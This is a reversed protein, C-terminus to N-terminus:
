QSAEAFSRAGVIEVQRVSIGAEAPASAASRNPQDRFLFMRNIETGYQKQLVFLHRVSVIKRRKDLLRVSCRPGLTTGILVTKVLVM